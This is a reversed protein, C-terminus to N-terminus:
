RSGYPDRGPVLITSFYPSDTEDDVEMLKMVREQPLSAHAIFVAKEALRLSHLVRKVKKVHRGIKIIVIGGLGKNVGEIRCRLENEHMPAPLVSLAELRACLPQKAAAACGMLSSVGPSIEVSYAGKLEAFLYMFSGYFFPDGQCLVIVDCGQDLYKAIESAASRYIEQAPFRAEKMPISIPIEIADKPIYPKAIERAFSEGGEPSPYAIVKATEIRRAAKVTVLETDGPGLGVGVLTGTM